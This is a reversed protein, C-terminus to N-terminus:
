RFNHKRYKNLLSLIDLDKIMSLKISTNFLQDESYKRDKKKYDISIKDNDWLFFKLISIEKDDSNKELWEELKKKLNYLDEDYKPTKAYITKAFDQLGIISNLKKKTKRSYYEYDTRSIPKEELLRRIIQKEKKTFLQSLYMQLDREAYIKQKEIFLFPKTENRLQLEFEDRFEDYDLRSPLMRHPYKEFNEYEKEIYEPLIGMINFENFLKIAIAIIAHFLENIENSESNNHIKSIDAKHKYILFPIAKLYRINETKLINLILKEISEDDGFMRYGAETLKKEITIEM